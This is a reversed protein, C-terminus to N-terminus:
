GAYCSDVIDMPVLDVVDGNWRLLSLSDQSTNFLNKIAPKFGAPPDGRRGYNKLMRFSFFFCYATHAVVNDM